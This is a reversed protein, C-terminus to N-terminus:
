PFLEMQRGKIFEEKKAIIAFILEQRQLKNYYKVHLTQAIKRLQGTGAKSLSSIDQKVESSQHTSSRTDLRASPRTPQHAPPSKRTRKNKQEGASNSRQEGAGRSAQMNVPKKESSKM